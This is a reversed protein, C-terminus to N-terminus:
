VMRNRDSGLSDKRFEALDGGIRLAEVLGFMIYTIEVTGM